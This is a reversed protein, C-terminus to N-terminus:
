QHMSLRTHCARTEKLNGQLHAAEHAHTDARVMFSMEAVGAIM